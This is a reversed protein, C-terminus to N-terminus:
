LTSRKRILLPNHKLLFERSKLFMEIPKTSMIDDRVMVITIFVVYTHEEVSFNKFWYRNWPDMQFM